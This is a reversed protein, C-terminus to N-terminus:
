NLNELNVLEGEVEEFVARGVVKLWPMHDDCWQQALNFSIEEITPGVYTILEGDKARIATFETFWKM